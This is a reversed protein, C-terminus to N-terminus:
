YGKSIVGGDELPAVGQLDTKYLLGTEGTIFMVWGGGPFEVRADGGGTVMRSSWRQGRMQWHTESSWDTEKKDWLSSQGARGELIWWGWGRM